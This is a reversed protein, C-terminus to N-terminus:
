FECMCFHLYKCFISFRLVYIGGPYISRPKRKRIARTHDECKRDVLLVIYVRYHIHLCNLLGNRDVVQIKWELFINLGVCFNNM